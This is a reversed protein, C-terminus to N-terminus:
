KEFRFLQKGVLFMDGPQLEVEGKIRVFTGNRSSQDVLLYRGDRETIVAHRGSMYGDHPFILDGDVRGIVTEAREIAHIEGVQGGETILQIVPKRTPGAKEGSDAALLAGCAACYFGTSSNLEGCQKCKVGSAPQPEPIAAVASKPEHGPLRKGCQMCFVWERENAANCSPCIMQGGSEKVVPSPVVAAELPTACLRCEKANQRNEAGCKPCSNM